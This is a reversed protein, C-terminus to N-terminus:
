APAALHSGHRGLIDSQVALAIKPVFRFAQQLLLVGSAASEVPEYQNSEGDDRNHAAHHHCDDPIPCLASCFGASSGPADARSLPSIASRAAFPPLRSAPGVKTGGGATTAVTCAGM